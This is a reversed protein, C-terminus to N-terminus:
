GLSIMESRLLRVYAAISSDNGTMYPCIRQFYGDEQGMRVLGTEARHHGGDVLELSRWICSVSSLGVISKTDVWCHTDLNDYM